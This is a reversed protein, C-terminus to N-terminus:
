AVGVDGESVQVRDGHSVARTKCSCQEHADAVGLGEGIRQALGEDCDVVELSMDVGDEELM